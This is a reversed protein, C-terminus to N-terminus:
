LWNSLQIGIGISNSYNDYDILSEGYGSFWQLYGRVQNNIAFSWGLQIAGKNESRDFNNRLTLDFTHNDRKYVSRLEFHGMYDDIDPNDDNASSEPLRWWPKLSFYFDGRELTFDAYLRNWSRSLPGAQGNSQHVLGTRILPNHLGLFGADNKFSLWVEPEHNTERFPSSNTKNFQQWFSRNTYAAYLDGKGWFINRAVPVKLSIQFKTELHQLNISRNPFAEEFPAANPTTTDYSLLIYNPKHPLLAFPSWAIDREQSMRQSIASSPNPQTTDTEAVNQPATSKEANNEVAINQEPQRCSLRIEGLTLENSGTSLAAHLCQEFPSLDNALSASSFLFLALITKKM